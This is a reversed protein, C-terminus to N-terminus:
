VVSEGCAAVVYRLIVDGHSGTPGPGEWFRAQAILACPEEHTGKVNFCFIVNYKGAIRQLKTAVMESNSHM